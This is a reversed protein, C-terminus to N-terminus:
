CCRCPAKRGACGNPSPPRSVKPALGDALVENHYVSKWGNAHLRMSTAMDETVSITAMPLLAQAEASRGVDTAALAKQVAELANLPSLDAASLRDALEAASM